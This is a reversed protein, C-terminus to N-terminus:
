AEKLPALDEDAEVQTPTAFYALEPEASEEDVQAQHWRTVDGVILLSPSVFKRETAATAFEGITSPLIRQNPTTGQEILLLPTSQTYGRRVLAQAVRGAFSGSMYFVLTEDPRPELSAWIPADEFENQFLTILRLSSAVGRETLPIGAHAACGLAATVGPVIEFPADCERVVALEDALRAFIGPDGGKIRAVVRKKKLNDRILTNIQEQPVGGGRFKGVQIMEADKRAYRELIQPSVLRDYLVVDARGLLQAARVTILDPHGPGAGILYLAGTAPGDPTNLAAETLRDAADQKGSIALQAIPGDILREIFRRRKQPNPLAERLRERWRAFLDGLGDLGQPLVSEIRYKLHRAFMPSIGHTGIAIQAPGRRVIAPFFCDCLDPDDVANVIAGSSRGDACVISNLPRDDTAAIVFRVENTDSKDYNKTRVEIRGPEQRNTEDIFHAFEADIESAVIRLRAATALISRSKAWAIEGGGVILVTDAAELRFYLPLTTYSNSTPM